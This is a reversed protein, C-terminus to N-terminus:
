ALPKKSNSHAKSTTNVPSPDFFTRQAKKTYNQLGKRYVGSRNIGLNEAKPPTEFDSRIYSAEQPKYLSLFNNM